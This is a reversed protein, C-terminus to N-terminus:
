RTPCKRRVRTNLRESIPLRAMPPTAGAIMGSSRDGMPRSMGLRTVSLLLSTNTPGLVFRLAPILPGTARITAPFGPPVLMPSNGQVRFKGTFTNDIGKIKSEFQGDRGFTLTSGADRVPGERGGM